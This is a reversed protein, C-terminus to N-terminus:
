QTRCAMLPSRIQRRLDFTAWRGIEYHGTIDAPGRHSITRMAITFETVWDIDSSESKELKDSVLIEPFVADGVLTGCLKRGRVVHIFQHVPNLSPKIVFWDEGMFDTCTLSSRYHAQPLKLIRIRPTGKGLFKRSVTFVMMLRSKRTYACM